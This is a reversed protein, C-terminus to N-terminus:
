GILSLDVSPASLGLRLFSQALKPLSGPLQVIACRNTVPQMSLLRSAVLDQVVWDLQLELCTRQRFNASVRRCGELGHLRGLVGLQGQARHCYPFPSAHHNAM